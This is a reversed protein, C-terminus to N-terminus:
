EVIRKEYHFDGWFGDINYHVSGEFHEKGVSCGSLCYGQNEGMDRM